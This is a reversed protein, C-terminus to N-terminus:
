SVFYSRWACFSGTSEVTAGQLRFPADLRRKM